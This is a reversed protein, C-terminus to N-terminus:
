GRWGSITILTDIADRYLAERWGRGRYPDIDSRKVPAIGPTYGRIKENM